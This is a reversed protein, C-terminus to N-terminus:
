KLRNLGFVSSLISERLVTPFWQGLVTLAWSGNGLRIVSSIPQSEVKNVLKRCFSEATTPREQSANARKRVFSEISKYFSHESWVRELAANANRAFDSQIAGPQVTFVRIGFPKLEMRLCDSLSNMAAKSACYTGSFPTTCVGSVSGINIIAGSSEDIMAPSFAQVLAMASFVNTSFQQQLEEISTEVLPGMSGYGANNVLVDLRGDESLIKNAIEDIQQQSNVDLRATVIGLKQLDNISDLNRATAWVKYGRKHYELALGRGIGTSCGTILVNKKSNLM